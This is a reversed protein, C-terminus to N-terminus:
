EEACDEFGYAEAAANSEDTVEGIRDSAAQLEADSSGPDTEALENLLEELEESRAIFEDFAERDQEPPDLAKLDAVADQVIPRAERAYAPLGSLEEPEELAELKDNAERCIKDGDSIVDNKSEGGCGVAILATLASVLLALRIV